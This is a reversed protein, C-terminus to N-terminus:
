YGIHLTVNSITQFALIVAFASAVENTENGIISRRMESFAGFLGGLHLASENIRRSTEILFSINDRAGERNRLNAIAENFPLSTIREPDSHAIGTNGQSVFSYRSHNHLKAVEAFNSRAIVNGVASWLQSASHFAPCAYVVLAHGATNSALSELASQQSPFTDYRFYSRRWFRYEKATHSVIFEPRKAQIFCNFKFPPLSQIRHQLQTWWLNQLQVGPLPARYRPFLQWFLPNSTHIAVDFGLINEFVQGPPFFRHHTILEHTLYQEYTKEEFEARM